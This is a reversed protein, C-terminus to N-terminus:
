PGTPGSPGTPDLAVVKGAEPGTPGSPGTPDAEANEKLKAEYEDVKTKIDGLEKENSNDVIQGARTLCADRLVNLAENLSVTNILMNALRVKLSGITNEKEEAM